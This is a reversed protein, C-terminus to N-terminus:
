KAKENEKEQQQKFFKAMELLKAKNEETLERGEMYMAYGFDDYGIPDAEAPGEKKTDTKGLLYDVSVNFYDAIKTLTEASLSHKRGMKLDTLSARNVGSNRCMTTITIKQSECLNNIKNYLNSM